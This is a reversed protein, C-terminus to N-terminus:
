IRKKMLRIDNKNEELKENIETKEEMVLLHPAVLEYYDRYTKNIIKDTCVEDLSKIYKFLVESVDVIQQLEMGKKMGLRVSNYLYNFCNLHEGEASIECSQFPNLGYKLAIELSEKGCISINSIFSCYENNSLESQNPNVGLEFFVNLMLPNSYFRSVWFIDSSDKYPTCNSMVHPNMGYSFVLEKLLKFKDGSNVNWNKKNKAEDKKIIASYYCIFEFLSCEIPITSSLFAHKVADPKDNYEESSLFSGIKSFRGLDSFDMLDNIGIDNNKLVKYIIYAHSMKAEYNDRFLFLLEKPLKKINNM